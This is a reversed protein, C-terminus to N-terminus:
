NLFDLVQKMLIEKRTKKNKKPKKKKKKKTKKKKKKKLPKSIKPTKFFLKLSTRKFLSSKLIM